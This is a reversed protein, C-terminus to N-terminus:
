KALKILKPIIELLDGTLRYHAFKFIPAASDSNIAIITKADLMGVRHQIAGSVGCAVYLDPKVTVGTQGIQRDATTWGADVVPRTAGVEGGLSRALDEVLKFNEKSGVGAGATVIIKAAKLNVTSKVVDRRLIKSLFDSDSLSVSVPTVNGKRSAEPNGTEAIGDRLTLVTSKGPVATYSTYVKRDFELKKGVLSKGAAEVKQCDLICASNTKAALLPALDYGQPSSPLLVALPKSKEFLNVLAKKYPTPLYNKLKADEVTYVTDAGYAVATKATEQLQTGIVAASLKTGSQAALEKGKKLCQLSLDSIGDETLEIYVLIESM